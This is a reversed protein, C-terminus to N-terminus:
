FIVAGTGRLLLVQDKKTKPADCGLKSEVTDEKTCAKSTEGFLAHKASAEGHEAHSEKSEVEVLEFVGQAQARHGMSTAPFVIVGDEVKIRVGIGSDPDAVQMWCGRHKCVGTIVGDVRISKGVYAEPNEALTAIAVAKEISVGDGYVKGEQGAQAAGALVLVFLVSLLTKKM